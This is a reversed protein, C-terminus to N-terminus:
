RAERCDRCKWADWKAQRHRYDEDSIDWCLSVGCDNCIPTWGGPTTSKNRHVGMM